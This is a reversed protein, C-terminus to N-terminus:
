IRFKTTLNSARNFGIAFHGYCQPPDSHQGTYSFGDANWLFLSRHGPNSVHTLTVSVLAFCHTKKKLKDIVEFRLCLNMMLLLHKFSCNMCKKTKQIKFFIKLTKKNKKKIQKKVGMTIYPLFSALFHSQLYLILNEVGLCWWVVDTGHRTKIWLPSRGTSWWLMMTVVLMMYLSLCNDLNGM